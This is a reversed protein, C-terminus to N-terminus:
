VPYVLPRSIILSAGSIGAGVLGGVAEAPPFLVGTSVGRSSVSSFSSSAVPSVTLFYTPEIERLSPMDSEIPSSKGTRSLKSKEM